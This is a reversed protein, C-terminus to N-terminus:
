DNRQAKIQSIDDLDLGTYLAIKEVSEGAHLMVQAMKIKQEDAGQAKGEAIGQAKGEAIGEAKGPLVIKKLRKLPMSLTAIPM